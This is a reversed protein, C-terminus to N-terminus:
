TSLEAAPALVNQRANQAHILSCLEDTVRASQQLAARLHEATERKLWGLRHHFVLWGEIAEVSDSRNGPQMFFNAIDRTFVARVAAEDKGALPVSKAFEPYDHKMKISRANLVNTNIELGLRFLPLNLEPVAVAVVSFYITEKVSNEQGSYEVHCVEFWLTRRTNIAGQMSDRVDSGKYLRVKIDQVARADNRSMQLEQALQAMGELRVKERERFIAKQRLVLRRLWYFAAAAALVGIVAYVYSM